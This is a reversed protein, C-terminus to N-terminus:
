GRGRRRGCAGCEVDAAVKVEDFRMELGDWLLLRGVLLKGAGTILKLVETAEISGIV